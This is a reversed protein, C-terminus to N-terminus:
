FPIDGSHRKIADPNILLERFRAVPELIGFGFGPDGVPKNEFLEKQEFFETFFHESKRRDLRVYVRGSIRIKDGVRVRRRLLRFLEAVSVTTELVELCVGADPNPKAKYKRPTKEKPPTYFRVARAATGSCKPCYRKINRCKKLRREFHRDVQEFTRSIEFDIGANVVARLLASGTGNRHEDLRAAGRNTFGVYHRVPRSKGTQYVRDLCVIYVQGKHKTM